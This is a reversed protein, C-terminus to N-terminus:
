NLENVQGIINRLLRRIGGVLRRANRLDVRSHTDWRQPHDFRVQVISWVLHRLQTRTTFDMIGLFSMTAEDLYIDHPIIHYNLWLSVSELEGRVRDFYDHRVAVQYTCRLRASHYTRTHM